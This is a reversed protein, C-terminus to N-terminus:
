KAVEAWSGVYKAPFQYRTILINAYTGEFVVQGGNDHVVSREARLTAIDAELAAITRYQYGRM